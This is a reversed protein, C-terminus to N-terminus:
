RGSTRVIAFTPKTVRLGVPASWTMARATGPLSFNIGRVRYFWRGPSLPLLASTAYTLKEGEKRWPYRSKSWQVQYQDAGLAPLWAALPSGYFSPM